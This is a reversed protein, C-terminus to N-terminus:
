GGGAGFRTRLTHLRRLTEPMDNRGSEARTLRYASYNRNEQLLTDFLTFDGVMCQGSALLDFADTHNSESSSTLLGDEQEQEQEAGIDSLTDTRRLMGREEDDADQDRAPDAVAGQGASPVGSQATAVPLANSATSSAGDSGSLKVLKKKLERRKVHVSVMVIQILLICTDLICLRWKSTPGQQGIFDIM